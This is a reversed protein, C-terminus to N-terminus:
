IKLVMKSNPALSMAANTFKTKSFDIRSAIEKQSTGIVTGNSVLSDNGFLLRNVWDRGEGAALIEIVNTSLKNGLAFIQLWTKSENQSLGDKM